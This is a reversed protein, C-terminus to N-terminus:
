EPHHEGLFFVPEKWGLDHANIAKIRSRGEVREPIPLGAAELITPMLDLTTTGGEYVVGAPLGAPWRMLLPVKASDDYSVTKSESGMRQGFTEGHDSTFSVFTNRDLGLAKMKAFILGLDHDIATCAGYYGPNDIGKSRYYDEYQKPPDYYYHAASLFLRVAPVAECVHAHQDLFETAQRTEFDSRYEPEYPKGIWHLKLSNYGSFFDFLGPDDEGLHWKGIYGTYYGAERFCLPALEPDAQIEPDHRLRQRRQLSERHPSLHASLRGDVAILLSPTCLAQPAYANSFRVGEAAMADLTPTKCFTNGAVGLADARMQDAMLFVINPRAPAASSASVAALSSLCFQRRNM